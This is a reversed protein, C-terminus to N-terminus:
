LQLPFCSVISSRVRGEPIQTLLAVTATFPTSGNEVTLSVIKSAIQRQNFFERYKLTSAEAFAVTAQPLAVFADPFSFRALVYDSIVSISPLGITFGSSIISFTYPKFSQSFPFVATPVPGTCVTENCGKCADFRTTCTGDPCTFRPCGAFPASNCDKRCAGDVCLQLGASCVKGSSCQVDVAVCDGRPCRKPKSPSCAQVPPCESISLVCTGDSCTENLCGPLCFNDALDTVSFGPLCRCRGSTLSAICETTKPNCDLMNSGCYDVPV